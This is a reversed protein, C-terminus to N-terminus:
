VRLFSSLISLHMSINACAHQQQPNTPAKDPVASCVLRRATMFAYVVGTAACVCGGHVCACQILCCSSAHSCVGEAQHQQQQLLATPLPGSTDGLPQLAAAALLLQQQRQQQDWQLKSAHLQENLMQQQAALLLLSQQQDLGPSQYPLGTPPQLDQQWAQLVDDQLRLQQQQLFLVDQPNSSQNLVLLEHQASVLQSPQQHVFGNQACRVAHQQQHQLLISNHAGSSQSQLQQHQQQQQQPSLLSQAAAMQAQGTQAERFWAPDHPGLHAQQAHHMAQPSAFSASMSAFSGPLQQSLQEQMSSKQMAQPAQM